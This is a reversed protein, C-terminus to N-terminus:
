EFKSQHNVLVFTACKSVDRLSRAGIYTCCSRLGGLIEEVTDKIPGKHPIIIERGESARYSAKGGYYKDMAKKSSMGYFAKYKVGDKEILEGGSENHGAFMKGLMVFDAGGGFAKCIDGPTTCGGDAIIRAGMGHAADACEIVASLQPYGVGTMKRTTCGAGPGIGVKVIDAGAIILAEVMEGTAVNGAIITTQPYKQRVRSVTDIFRQTYGNAVDMCIFEPNLRNVLIHLNELEEERIGTTITVYPLIDPKNIQDLDEPSHFKHLATIIKYGSLVRAIEITGSTDMNSAIIPIGKWTKKSHPFTFERNLDVDKRSTLTSRKPRLLVDDYDLKTETLM